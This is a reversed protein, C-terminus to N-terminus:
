LNPTAPFLKHRRVFHTHTHQQRFHSRTLTLLNARQLNRADSYTSFLFLPSVCMYVCFYMRGLRRRRRRVNFLQLASIQMAALVVTLPAPARARGGQRAILESESNNTHM